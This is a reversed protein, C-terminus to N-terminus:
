EDTSPDQVALRLAAHHEPHQQIWTRLAEYCAEREEPSAEQALPPLGLAQLLHPREMLSAALDLSKSLEPRDLLIVQGDGTPPAHRQHLTQFRGGTVAQLVDVIRDVPISSDMNLKLLQGKVRMDFLADMETLASRINKTETSLPGDLRELVWFTRDQASGLLTSGLMLLVFGNRM